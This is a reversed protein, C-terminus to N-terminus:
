DSSRVVPWLGDKGTAKGGSKTRGMREAIRKGSGDFRRVCNTTEKQHLPRLDPNARRAMEEYFTSPAIPLMKCIPEVRYEDRHEDVFSVM